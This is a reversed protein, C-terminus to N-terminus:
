SMVESIIQKVSPSIKNEDLFNQLNSKFDLSRDNSMKLKSIFLDMQENKEKEKEVKEMNMVEHIPIVPIYVTEPKKTETDFLVVFPRHDMQDLAYYSRIAYM